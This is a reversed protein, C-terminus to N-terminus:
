DKIQGIIFNAAVSFLLYGFGLIALCSEISFVKIVYGFFFAGLVLTLNSAFQYIPNYRAVEEATHTLM